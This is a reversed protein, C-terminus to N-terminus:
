PVRVNEPKKTPGGTCVYTHLNKCLYRHKMRVEPHVYISVDWLGRLGFKFGSSYGSLRKLTFCRGLFVSVVEKYSFLTEFSLIFPEISLKAIRKCSGSAPKECNGPYSDENGPVNIYNQV